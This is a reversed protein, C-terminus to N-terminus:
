GSSELFFWDILSLREKRERKEYSFCLCSVWIKWRLVSENILFVNEHEVEVLSFLWVVLCAFSMALMDLWDEFFAMMRM